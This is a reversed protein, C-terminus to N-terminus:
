EQELSPHYTQQQDDTVETEEQVPTSDEDGLVDSAIEDAPAEDVSSTSSPVVEVSVSPLLFPLEVTQVEVPAPAPAPAPAVKATQLKKALSGLYSM